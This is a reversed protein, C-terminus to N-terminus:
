RSNHTNQQSAPAQDASGEAPHAVKCFALVRDRKLPSPVFHIQSFLKQQVQFVTQFAKRNFFFTWDYGGNQDVDGTVILGVSEGLRALLLQRFRESLSTPHSAVAGGMRGKRMRRHTPLAFEIVLTDSCLEALRRVVQIPEHIHHLVSLFLVLDFKEDLVVRTIDGQRIEVGDGILESIKRAVAVREPDLELGLVRGAGRRKAEHSYLGYYCGVDLVSKGSLDRPLIAEIKVTSDRGPIELGYPLEIRQYRSLPTNALFHEIEERTAPM